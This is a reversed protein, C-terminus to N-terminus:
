VRSWGQRKYVDVGNITEVLESRNVRGFPRDFIDNTRGLSELARRLEPQFLIPISVLLTPQVVNRMLWSFTDLRDRICM